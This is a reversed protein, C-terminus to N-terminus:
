EQEPQELAACNALWRARRMSRAMTASIDQMAPRPPSTFGSTRVAVFAASLPRGIMTSSPQGRWHPRCVSALCPM